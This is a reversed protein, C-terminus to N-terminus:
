RGALGLADDVPARYVAFGHPGLAVTAPGGPGAPWALSAPPGSGGLGPDAGDLLLTYGDDAPGAEPDAGAVLPLRPPLEVTVPDPAVNVVAVVSEDATWRRVVLVTGNVQAAVEARSSRALARHDRRLDILARYLQRLGSGAPDRRRAPDLVARAFTAEETPDLAEDDWGYDAMETRRGQRVAELLEPDGHDVFFPFPATEGYEEGMFLLPVGPSVLLVAAALRLRAPDVLSALRDGRPRNGVHDHNSVFLVFHEPDIGTSSAGHRRQRFQSYEGQLVFGGNVARAVLDLPGFDVYYGGREGTLAAHVAHHFDDNWQADMGLGGVATPSVVRPDNDASEAILSLSRGLRTGLEATAVSLDVLFPTATPDVIGHVADLRLADVHFDAFWSRANEIFFRRVDDSGPGSFNIANGWPTRYRDTLYPGYADVVNGEPGLHNYVVDLVVALGRAHCADVFRQLGAPGGYSDQVAFPFAGDYGWNRRGPFQALPMLEVATVGVAALDDLVEVASDLTGGPTLTGVHCEYIVQDWLPRAIFGPRGGPTPGDAWRHAALDVVESPGHVGEPQSRSAPDALEVGDLVYRYRTGPGCREVLAGHYGGHGVLPVTRGAPGLLQVAV